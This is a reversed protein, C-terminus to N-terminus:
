WLNAEVLMAETIKRARMGPFDASHAPQLDSFNTAFLYEQGGGEIFGVFWGFYVKGEGHYANSGTKGSYRYGKPTQELYILDRTQQQAKPSAKLRSTYLKKLFEIQEYASIRLGNPKESPSLLWAQTIGASLDKNGYEFQNLYKQMRAEGIMPTIRQSFWVVSHKMWSQATHDRNLEERVEKKGSWSLKSNADRLVKSDFAMVALPIKFTSCAPYQEGCTEGIEKEFTQTRLNYLLFCGRLGIFPNAAVKEAAKETRPPSACSLSFLLAFVLLWKM